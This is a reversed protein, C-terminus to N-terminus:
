GLRSWGRKCIKEMARPMRLSSFPQQFVEFFAGGGPPASFIWKKCALFRVCIGKISGSPHKVWTVSFYVFGTMKPAFIGTKPGMEVM